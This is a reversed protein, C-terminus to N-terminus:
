DLYKCYDILLIRGGSLSVKFNSSTIQTIAGFYAVRSLNDGLPIDAYLAKSYIPIQVNLESITKSPSTARDSTVSLFHSASCGTCTGLISDRFYVSIYFNVLILVVVGYVKILLLVQLVSILIVKTDTNM